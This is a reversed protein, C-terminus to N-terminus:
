RVEEQAQLSKVDKALKLGKKPSIKSGHKMKRIKNNLKLKNLPASLEKTRKNLNM